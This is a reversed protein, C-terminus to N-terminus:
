YILRKITNVVKERIYELKEQSKVQSSESVGFYIKIKPETGSPRICFWSGDILEYYLVNSNPLDLAIKKETIVNFTEKLQYDRVAKVDCDCFSGKKEARLAEMASNIREVGEKGELTFSNIGEVFYGYKEFIEQLGEYLSMGRSRYYAAM